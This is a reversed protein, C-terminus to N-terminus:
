GSFCFDHRACMTRRKFHQLFLFSDRIFEFVALSLWSHNRDPFFSWFTGVGSVGDRELRRMMLDVYHPPYMTDADIFFHYQGRANDLGCRRAYGPSQRTETICRVGFADYVSATADSSNNNVGIIEIPYDTVMDSLSWLCASLRTEENYAIVVVSVVPRESQMAMIRERARGIIDDPVSGFPTNYVELYKDYWAM